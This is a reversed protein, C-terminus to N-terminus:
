KLIQNIYLVRPVSMSGCTELNTKVPRGAVGRYIYIGSKKLIPCKKRGNGEKEVSLVVRKEANIHLYLYIRRIKQLNYFIKRELFIKPGSGIKHGRM